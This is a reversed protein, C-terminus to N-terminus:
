IDTKNTQTPKKDSGSKCKMQYIWGKGGDSFLLVFFLRGYISSCNNIIRLKLKGNEMIESTHRVILSLVGYELDTAAICLESLGPISYRRDHEGSPVADDHFIIRTESGM